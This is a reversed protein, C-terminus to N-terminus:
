LFFIPLTQPVESKEKLLYVWFVCSHDDTFMFFWKQNFPTTIMSPGWLDSHVLAFLHSIQYLPPSFPIRQHKAMQCIDCSFYDNHRFLSPFLRKPVFFWSSRM